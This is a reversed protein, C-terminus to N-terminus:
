SKLVEENKFRLVRLGLSKLHEQRIADDARTFEHIPGDVEVVLRAGACYFDVSFRDITHQRRFKSGAGRRRLAQWLRDEAETPEARKERALPKLRAWLEPEPRKASPM